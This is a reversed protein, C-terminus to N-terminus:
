SGPRRSPSWVSNAYEELMRDDLILDEEGPREQRQFLIRFKLRLPGGFVRFGHSDAAPWITISQDLQLGYQPGGTWRELYISRDPPCAKILLVHKGQEPQRLWTAVMDERLQRMDQSVGTLIVLSYEPLKNSDLGFKCFNAALDPEQAYGGGLAPTAPKCWFLRPWPVPSDWYKMYQLDFTDFLTAMIHRKLEIHLKEHHPTLLALRLTRKNASYSRVRFKPRNM